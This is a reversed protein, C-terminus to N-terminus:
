RRSPPAAGATSPPSSMSSGAFPRDAPQTEIQEIVRLMETIERPRLRNIEEETVAPDAQHLVYFLFAALVDVDTDKAALTGYTVGRQKLVRWDGLRLPVVGDLTIGRGNLTVTPM